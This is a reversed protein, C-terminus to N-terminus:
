AARVTCTRSSRSARTRLATRTSWATMCFNGDHPYEGSDGGYPVRPPRRARHGPRDCPDCWEWIFGGALGDYRQILEFYDELDGPRQGDCPLVRVAVSATGNAGDDGNSGDGQPGEDSFYREISELTPYM